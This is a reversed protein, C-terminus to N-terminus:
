VLEVGKDHGFSNVQFLINLHCTPSPHDHPYLLTSTLQVSLDTPTLPIQHGSFAEANLHGKCGQLLFCFRVKLICIALCGEYIVQQKHIFKVLLTNNSLHLPVPM